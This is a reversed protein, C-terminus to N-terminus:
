MWIDPLVLRPYIDSQPRKAQTPINVISRPASTIARFHSDHALKRLARADVPLSIITTAQQDSTDRPRPLDDGPAVEVHM